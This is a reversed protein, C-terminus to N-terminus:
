LDEPLVDGPSLFVDASEPLAFPVTQHDPVGRVFDQPHREEFTKVGTRINNWQRRTQSAKLKFGTKQDYVNWDGNVFRTM